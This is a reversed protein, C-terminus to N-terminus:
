RKELDLATLGHYKNRSCRAVDTAPQYRAQELLTVANSTEHSIARSQFAAIPVVVNLDDGTVHKGSLSESRDHAIDIDRVIEDV